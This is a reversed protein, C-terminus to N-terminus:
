VGYTITLTTGTPVFVWTNYLDYSDTPDAGNEPLIFPIAIPIDVGRTASVNADGISAVASSGTEAAIAIWRARPGPTSVLRTATSGGIVDPLTHLTM